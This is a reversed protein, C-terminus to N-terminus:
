RRDIQNVNMWYRRANLHGSNVLDSGNIIPKAGSGYAGIYMNDRPVTIQARSERGREFLIAPRLSASVANAATLLTAITDDPATAPVKFITDVVEVHNRYAIVSSTDYKADVTISQNAGVDYIVYQGASVPYYNIQAQVFASLLLLLITLINKM